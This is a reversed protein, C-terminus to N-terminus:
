GAAGPETRSPAKKQPPTTGPDPLWVEINDPNMYPFHEGIPKATFEFHEGKFKETLYLALKDAADKEEPGFYRVEPNNPLIKSDVLQVGQMVRYQQNALEDRFQDAIDLPRAHRTGQVGIHFYVRYIHPGLMAQANQVAQNIKERLDKSSTAEADKHKDQAPLGATPAPAGTVPASTVPASAPAAPAEAVTTPGGPANATLPDCPQVDAGGGHLIAAQIVSLIGTAFQPSTPRDHVVLFSVINKRDAEGFPAPGAAAPILGIEASSAREYADQRVDCYVNPFANGILKLLSMEKDADAREKLQTRNDFYFKFGNEVNAQRMEFSHQVMQIGFAAASLVASLILTAFPLGVGKNREVTALVTTGADGLGGAM